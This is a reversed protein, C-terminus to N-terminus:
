AKGPPGFRYGVGRVTRLYTPSGPDEEIAKRVWRIHVDLTRTDGLYDTDWVQKMLFARTLVQGPHRMLVELLRGQKPTLRKKGRGYVVCRMEANYVVDAVQLMNSLMGAVRQTLTRESFPYCLFAEAYAAEVADGGKRLLVQIPIGPYVERLADCLRVGKFRLSPMDILVGIPRSTQVRALTTKRTAAKVVRYGAKELVPALREATPKRGEVLVITYAPAVYQVGRKRAMQALDLVSKM